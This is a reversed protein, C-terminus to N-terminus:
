SDFLTLLSFFAPRWAMYKGLQEEYEEFVIGREFIKGNREKM